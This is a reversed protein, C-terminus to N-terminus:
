IDNTPWTPTTRDLYVRKHEQATGQQVLEIFIVNFRTGHQDPIYVADQPSFVSAGVYGDRIDVSIDVLMIHTWTLADNNRDGAEQGGRWDSKLFGAVGTAAPSGLPPLSGLHFLDFTANAAVPIAM